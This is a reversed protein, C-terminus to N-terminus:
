KLKEQALEQSYRKINELLEDIRKEQYDSPSKYYEILADDLLEITLKRLLKYEKTFKIMTIM